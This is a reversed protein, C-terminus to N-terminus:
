AATRRVWCASGGVRSARATQGPVPEPRRVCSRRDRSPASNSSTEGLVPGAGPAVTCGVDGQQADAAVVQGGQPGSLDRLFM